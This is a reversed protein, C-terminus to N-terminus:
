APRTTSAPKATLLLLENLVDIEKFGWKLHNVAFRIDKGEKLWALTTELTQM